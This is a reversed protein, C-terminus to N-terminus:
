GGIPKSKRFGEIIEAVTGDVILSLGHGFAIEASSEDVKRVFIIADVNVAVNKNSRSEKLYCIAGSMPPVGGNMEGLM